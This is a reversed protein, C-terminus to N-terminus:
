NHHVVHWRSGLSRGWSSWGPPRGALFRGEAADDALYLYGVHGAFGYSIVGFEVGITRGTKGGERIPRAWRGLGGDQLRLREPYTGNIVERAVSEYAAQSIRFRFIILADGLGSSLPVSSILALMPLFGRKGHRELRRALFFLTEAVLALFVVLLALLSVGWPAYGSLDLGCVVVVVIALSYQM